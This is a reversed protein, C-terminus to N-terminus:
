RVAQHVNTLETVCNSGQLMFGRLNSRYCVAPEACQNALINVNKLSAMCTIGNTVHGHVQACMDEPMGLYTIACYGGVV